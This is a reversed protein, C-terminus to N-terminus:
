RGYIIEGKRRFIRIDKLEELAKKPEKRLYVMYTFAGLDELYTKKAIEEITYGQVKYADKRPVFSGNKVYYKLESLVRPNQSLYLWVVNLEETTIDYKEQLFDFVESKNMKVIEKTFENRLM